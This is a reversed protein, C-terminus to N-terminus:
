IAGRNKASPDVTRDARLMRVIETNGREYAWLLAAQQRASPDVRPDALLIRVIEIHSNRSAWVLACQNDVSPDVRPDALLIRVIEIHGKECAWLFVSQSGVSPDVRPDALLLRVIDIHGYQSASRFAYQNLASPDVRPDALLMRVIDLLGTRCGWDLARTCKELSHYHFRVRGEFLHKHKESGRMRKLISSIRSKMERNEADSYTWSYSASSQIIYNMLTETSLSDVYMELRELVYGWGSYSRKCGTTYKFYEIEVESDDRLAKCLVRLAPFLYPHHVCTLYFVLLTRNSIIEVDRRIEMRTKKEQRMDMTSHQYHNISTTAYKYYLITHIILTLTFRSYGITRLGGRSM